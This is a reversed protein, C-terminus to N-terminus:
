QLIPLRHIGDILRSICNIVLFEWVYQIVSPAGQSLKRSLGYIIQLNDIFSCAYDMSFASLIWFSDTTLGHGNTANNRIEPFDM